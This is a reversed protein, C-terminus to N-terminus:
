VHVIFTGVEVHTDTDEQSPTDGDREEGDREEEDQDGDEDFGGGAQSLFTCKYM